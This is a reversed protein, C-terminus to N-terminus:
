DSHLIELIPAGFELARWRRMGPYAELAPQDAPPSQALTELMNGPFVVGVPLRLEGAAAQRWHKLKELRARAERSFPRSAVPATRSRSAPKEFRAKAITRYIEGAFNRAVRFSVGRRKFLEAPSAPPRRALDILVSNDVVKFPPLDMVRAYHDRLLYLARLISRERPKLERSGRIRLYGERDFERQQLVATAAHRFEEEAWAMRGEARLQRALRDRLQLLHHTDMAAYELQEQDLPRRSWDDRQRRKSHSIGLLSELLTDLGLQQYGLLQAAIHTDFINCFAFGYDRRLSSVDYSAAHLVKEVTRDALIPALRSIDKIALPDVIFTERDTSLQILCVKEVYHYLSDAEIDLALRKTGDVQGLMKGFSDATDIWAYDL